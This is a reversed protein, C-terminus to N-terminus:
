PTSGDPFAPMAVTQGALAHMSDAAFTIMGDRISYHCVTTIGRTEPDEDCIHIEPHFSPRDPNQNWAWLAGADNPTEVSIAHDGNCGPCCHVLTGGQRRVVSM